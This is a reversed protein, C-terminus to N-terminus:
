MAMDYSPVIYKMWILHSNMAIMMLVNHHGCLSKVLLSTLPRKFISGDIRMGNPGHFLLAGHGQSSDVLYIAPTM